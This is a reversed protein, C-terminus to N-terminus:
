LPVGCKSCLWCVSVACLPSFVLLRRCCCVYRKITSVRPRSNTAGVLSKTNIRVLSPCWTRRLSTAERQPMELISCTTFSVQGGMPQQFVFYISLDIFGYILKGPCTLITCTATLKESKQKQKFHHNLEPDTTVMCPWWPYGSVKTWVLDGVSFRSLLPAPEKVEEKLESRNEPQM